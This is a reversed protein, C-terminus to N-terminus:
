GEEDLVRRVSLALESQNYPKSLLNTALKAYVAKDENNLEERKKTFGSTLLVKLNPRKEIAQKALEYGDMGGPMIVDSFLLDIDADGQLVELAQMGGNATVTRYGLGELHSVAIDVLHEEDDVVLITESGRPLDAQAPEKGESEGEEHARSLYIRITTGEGPESYIKMHGKSRQVFGYVMGLGLGTGKGEEKTSFFPELVRERVEPTMGHGTDSVSLMVFEGAKGQPNRRVYDEDLVKNSTEIVLSGGDSMADRANLALNLIADQFDGPDVEVPWLDDALHHEVNIAVTLSKVLLEEMNWILENVSTLKTEHAEKRSFGLLKRTLDAGRKAGKLATEVRRSAEEDGSVRRQLLELNGMVIALINNFDHAIGGTLQGVAEMKQSRRIQEEIQRRQFHEGIREAMQNILDREEKLFPGEDL